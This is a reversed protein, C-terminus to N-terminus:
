ANAILYDIGGFESVTEEMLRRCDDPRTVDGIVALAQAGAESCREAVEQQRESEPSFLAVKAGARALELGLAAGLGSSAGTVVVSKDKFEMSEKGM